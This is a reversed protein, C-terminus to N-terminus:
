AAMKLNNNILKQYELITLNNLQKHRRNTNYFTEIYEFISLEAEQRTLYRNQYILEVKLTKFFSEAVANDWCNGKRSMSRIISKQKNLECVFEECAYQIGRDSHFILSQNNKIPRNILAMKFAKISTDKASMTASLAWGIVKRDFLDIVSTLYLWGQGTRVYTIDSVWTQNERSVTFERNLNNEVVPYKHSSDTTVKFKRKVISQLFEKKMLKRVLEKSAIFGLMKLEKTIRPSGYRKKNYYYIRKIEELLIQNYLARKSPVRILWKYYSSKNIKFVQCMKEVTFLYKNQKIFEFKM